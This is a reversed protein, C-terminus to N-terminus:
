LDAEVKGPDRCINARDRRWRANAFEEMDSCQQGRLLNMKGDDFLVDTLVISKVGIEGSLSVDV